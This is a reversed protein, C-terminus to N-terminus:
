GGEGVPQDHNHIHAEGAHESDFDEHPV